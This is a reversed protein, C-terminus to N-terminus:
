DPLAQLVEDIALHVTHSRGVGTPLVFHLGDHEVKKDRRVFPALTRRPPLVAREFGYRLLLARARSAADAALDRRREAVDLAFHLGRAVALGHPVEFGGHAELAHGLTHGLNLLRRPGHEHFDAEVLEIKARVALEVVDLVASPDKGLVAPAHQELVEFLEPSLGIAIKLVEGLGSRLELEPLSSLFALDILVRRAPHFTGVLNKGEPLDIATKGGVSSDVMALLTTPVLVFEIGRAFLAAALGGLDGLSGGGVVYLLGQRGVEAQALARLVAELQALSKAAEGGAMTLRPALSAIRVAHPEAVRADILALCRRDSPLVLLGSEDRTLDVGLCIETEPAGPPACRLTIM